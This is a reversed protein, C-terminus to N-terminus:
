FLIETEGGKQPNQTPWDKTKQTSIQYWQKDKQWQENPWQMTQRKQISPKQNDGPKRWVIRDFM